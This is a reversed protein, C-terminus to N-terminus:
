LSSGAIKINLRVLKRHSVPNVSRWTQM